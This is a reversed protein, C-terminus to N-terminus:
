PCIAVRCTPTNVGPRVIWPHLRLRLRRLLSLFRRLRIAPVVSVPAVPLTIPEEVMEANTGVCAALVLSMTIVLGFLARKM